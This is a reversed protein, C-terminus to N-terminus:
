KKVMVLLAAVGVAGAVLLTTNNKEPNNQEDVFSEFAGAIREVSGASEQGAAIIDSSVKQAAAVTDLAFNNAVNLVDKHSTVVKEALTFSKAVSGHDVKELHITQRSHKKNGTINISVPDGLQTQSGTQSQETSSKSSSGGFLGM